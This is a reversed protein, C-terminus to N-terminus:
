GRSMGTAISLVGALVWVIACGEAVNWSIGAVSNVVLGCGPVGMTVERASGEDGTMGADGTFGEVEPSSLSFTTPLSGLLMSSMRPTIGLDSVLNSARISVTSVAVVTVRSSLPAPVISM